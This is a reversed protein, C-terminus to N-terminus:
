AASGPTIAGSSMPSAPQFVPATSDGAGLVQETEASRGQRIEGLERMPAQSRSEHRDLSEVCEQLGITIRRQAAGELAAEALLRDARLVDRM